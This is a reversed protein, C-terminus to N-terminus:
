QGPGGPGRRIGRGRQSPCVRAPGPCRYAGRWHAGRCTPRRRPLSVQATIPIRTVATCDGVIVPHRRTRDPRDDKAVADFGVIGQLHHEAKELRGPWEIDAVRRPRCREPLRVELQRVPRPECRLPGSRPSGGAAQGSRARGGPYGARRRALLVPSSRATAPTSAAPGSGKGGSPVPPQSSDTRRLCRQEVRGPVAESRDTRIGRSSCLKTM